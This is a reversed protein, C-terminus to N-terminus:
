LVYGEEIQHGKIYESVPMRKKNPFQVVTILLCNEGTQVKMGDKDVSLITGAVKDTNEEIITAEFIKITEEKYTTYAVPWPNLGRILNNIKSASDAFNIKGLSKNMMPAITAEDDNQPVRNKGGDQILPIAELLAQAGVVKMKEYLTESTEAQMIDMEKKYIMDGTDLGVDMYMITVGTKTDGNIVSWQIPAAGRYKPLLSGHVNICGLRPLDLVEKPLIQGFAVVVILDPEVQKLKNYFEEDGRVRQPQSVEINYELALEKVPPMTLKKGRNKPRDPQTVVLAVEFKEDILMQLTPVAFDPTGMFVVKM